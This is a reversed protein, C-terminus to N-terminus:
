FKHNSNLMLNITIYSRIKAQCTDLISILVVMGSLAPLLEALRGFSWLLSVNDIDIESLNIVGVSHRIFCALEIMTFAYAGHWWAHAHDSHLYANWNNELKKKKKDLCPKSSLFWTSRLCSSRMLCTSEDHDTHICYVLIRGRFLIGGAM